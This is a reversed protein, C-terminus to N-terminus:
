VESRQRGGWEGPVPVTHVPQEVEGEMPMLWGDQWWREPVRPTLVEVDASLEWPLPATQVWDFAPEFGLYAEPARAVPTQGMGDMVLPAVVFQVFEISAADTHLGHYGWRSYSVRYPRNRVKARYLDLTEDTPRQPLLFGGLGAIREGTYKRDVTGVMPVGYKLVPDRTSTFVFLHGDVHRLMETLDFRRSLSSSLFVVNDITCGAPLAEVAWAAVGTGASLAVVSVPADPYEARYAAIRRSLKRAMKRNRHTDVQDRLTGGLVSQWAFVEVSGHYGARRLGSPVSRTGVVNGLPGAGGVFYTRGQSPDQELSGLGSM